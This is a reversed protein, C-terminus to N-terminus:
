FLTTSQSLSDEATLASEEVREISLQEAATSNDMTITLHNVIGDQSVDSQGVFVELTLLQDEDCLVDNDTM